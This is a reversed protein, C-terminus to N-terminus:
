VRGKGGPTKSADDSGKTTLCPDTVGCVESAGCSGIACKIGGSVDELDRDSLEASAVLDPLVLTLDARANDIFRLEFGDPLERDVAERVAARPDKLCLARFGVDAGARSLIQRLADQTAEPTWDSPRDAKNM